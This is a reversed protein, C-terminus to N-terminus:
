CERLQLRLDPVFLHVSDKGDARIDLTPQHPLPHYPPVEELLHRLIAQM